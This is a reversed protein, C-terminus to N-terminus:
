TNLKYFFVSEDREILCNRLAKPSLFVAVAFSLASNCFSILSLFIIRPPTPNNLQNFPPALGTYAAKLDQLDHGGVLDPRRFTDCPIKTSVM